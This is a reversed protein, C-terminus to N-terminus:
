LHLRLEARLGGEKRNALRVEGGHDEAVAQVISLGLGVGDASRSRSGDGRHFPACVAEIQSEPIGPGRDEVAIVAWGDVQATSVQAEQGYKLANEILNTVARKIALRKCSIVPGPPCHSEVAAGDDALDNCISRVLAGLDIRSREEAEHSARAYNLFTGITESLDDLAVLNKDREPSAPAMEIRLRIQTIPTRLDHSIAALFETRGDILRTLRQQMRNFATAVAAVESPGSTQLPPSRLNRGLSEAAEALRALPATVRRVLWFGILAIGVAATVADALFFGQLFTRSRNISGLFNVWEGDDHRISIAVNRVGGPINLTTVPAGARSTPDFPPPTVQPDQEETFRVAVDQDAVEPLQTRLFAHVDSEAKTPESMVVAPEPSLWVRLNRTDSLQVARDRRVASVEHLLRSVDAAREARDIAETLELASRRDFSYFVLGAIQSLLLTLAIIAVTQFRLSSLITRM